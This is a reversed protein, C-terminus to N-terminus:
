GKVYLAEAAETGVLMEILRYKRMPTLTGAEAAVRVAESALRLQRDYDAPGGLVRAVADLKRLDRARTELETQGAAELPGTAAALPGVLGEKVAVAFRDRCVQSLTERIAKVRPAHDPDAEIERLLTTVRRVEDGVTALAGRAIADTFGTDDEMHTLVADTGRDMARQMLTKEDQSRGSAVIRRLLGSAHPSRILILRAIMACGCESENTIDRLIDDMAEADTDLAGIEERRAIRRLQPARRLVAACAAALPRFAATPLGTQAWDAPATAQDLIEAARPWLAEGAETITLATDAGRDAVIKDVYAAVSGLAARVLGSIPPLVSRPLTPEGPRWDRPAVLLPDLPIFLLRAFGLPRVPRLAALRHRVPDLVAQNIAPDSVDDVLALIRRIKQDNAELLQPRLAQMEAQRRKADAASTDPPSV